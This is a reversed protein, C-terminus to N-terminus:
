INHTSRGSSLVHMMSREDEECCFNLAGNLGVM